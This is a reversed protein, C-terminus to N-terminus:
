KRPENGEGEDRRVFVWRTDDDEGAAHAGQKGGVAGAEDKELKTKQHSM